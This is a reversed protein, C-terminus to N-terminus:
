FVGIESRPVLSKGFPSPPLLCDDGYSMGDDDNRVMNEFVLGRVIVEARIVEVLEVLLM